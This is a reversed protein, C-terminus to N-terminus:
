GRERHVCIDHDMPFFFRSSSVPCPCPCPHTHTHTEREQRGHSPPEMSGNKQNKRKAKKSDEQSLGFAGPDQALPHHCCGLMSCANCHNPPPHYSPTQLKCANSAKITHASSSSSIISPASRLPPHALAHPQHVVAHTRRASARRRQQKSASTTTATATAALSIALNGDWEWVFLLGVQTERGATSM